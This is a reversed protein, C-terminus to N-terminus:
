YVFRVRVTKKRVKKAGDDTTGGTQNVENVYYGRWMLLEDISMRSISRSKISYSSVDNDARGEIISNIKAVMIEAHSRRDSTSTFVSLFGSNIIAENNPSATQRLVLDWRCEDSDTFLTTWASGESVATPLEFVWYDGDPLTVLTGELTVPTLTSGVRQFVYKLLYDTDSYELDLKWGLYRGLVICEPHTEPYKERDFPNDTM